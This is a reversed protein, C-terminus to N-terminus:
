KEAARLKSSIESVGLRLLYVIDKKVCRKTVTNHIHLYRDFGVAASLPIDPHTTLSKISGGTGHLAGVLPLRKDSLTGGKRLDFLALRGQASGVLVIKDRNTESIATLPYDEFSFDIVPRRQSTRPDYVRVQSHRTCTAVPGSRLFAIDSIWIPVRLQLKDPRVNKANFTPKTLDNMDWLRLDAEKGGTALIHKQQTSHQCRMLLPINEAEASGTNSKVGQGDVANFKTGGDSNDKEPNWIRVIGSRVAAVINEDVVSLGTLPGEGGIDANYTKTILQADVDYVHIQQSQLGVLLNSEEASAWSLANISLQRDPTKIENLNEHEEALNDKFVKLRVGKLLGTESGAYINYKVLDCKELMM